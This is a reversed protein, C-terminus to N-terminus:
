LNRTNLPQNRGALDYSLGVSFTRGPRGENYVETVDGLTYTFRQASDLVNQVGASITWGGSLGASAKLNLSHFPQEYVDPTGGKSVIALREGQVNYSLNARIGNDAIYTLFANAIFESQGFMDRTPEALPNLAKIAEFEGLPIDVEADVYTLNGGLSLGYLAPSLVDLKQNLEVEAGMMRGQQVNQYRLEKNAATEVDTLEIPNDFLKYFGSVSIMNGPTPFTEWRLDYNSINTIQLDSNGNIIANRVVDFVSVPAIERFTPRAVTRSYNARLNMKDPRLEYILTASPLPDLQDLLEVPRQAQGFRFATYDLTTNEVRVGLVSRLRSTLPLETMAYAAWIDMESDYQNRDESDDAIFIGDVNETADFVNTANAFDILNNGLDGAEENRYRLVQERFDREKTLYAGGIKVTADQGSWQQFGYKMNAQFDLNSENMDRRFRTPVIDEAADIAQQEGTLAFPDLRQDAEYTTNFFRLDPQKMDSLTYSGLWDFKFTGENNFSHEGRLQGSSLARQVYALTRTLTYPDSTGQVFGNQLRASSEGTQSRLLSFSIKNLANVSYAGNFMAGLLVQDSFFNDDQRRQAILNASQSGTLLYRGTEGNQYGSFGRSYTLSAIYGFKNGFLKTQNGYVVSAGYNPLGPAARDPMFQSNLSLTADQIQRNVAPNGFALAQDPLDVAAAPFDRAGNDYGLWDTSSGEYGLYNSNFNANDNFGFSLSAKLTETEPFEKTQINILGGTFDGPLDPTFNKYVVINELLSTPFLDMQVTNREPDLGPINASNLTTKSYRDSLGRVYVYKGGEVSLGTVRKLADASNGDGRLSFAQSSVANITNLSKRQLTQMANETNTVQQAVITLVEGDEGVLEISSTGLRIDALAVVKDAAVIVEQRFEDFGTYAVVITQPGIPLELEFLGDLDTQTGVSQDSALFVDGFLVPEGTEGDLVKGRVTGTQAFLTAGVLLLLLTHLFKM